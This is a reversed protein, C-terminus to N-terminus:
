TATGGDSIGKLSLQRSFVKQFFAEYQARNTSVEAMGLLRGLHTRLAKVGIESLFEHLALVPRQSDFFARGQYRREAGERVSSVPDLAVKDWPPDAM